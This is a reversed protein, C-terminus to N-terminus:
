RQHQTAHPRRPRSRSLFANRVTM